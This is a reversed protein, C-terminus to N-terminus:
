PGPSKGSGAAAPLLVCRGSKAVVAAHLVTLCDISSYASLLIQTSLVPAVETASRCEAILAGNKTVVYGGHRPVADLQVQAESAPGAPVHDFLQHTIAELAIGARVLFRTGLLAFRRRVTLLNDGVPAADPPQPQM